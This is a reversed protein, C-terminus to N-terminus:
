NYFNVLPDCKMDITFNNTQSWIGPPSKINSPQWNQPIVFLRGWRGGNERRVPDGDPHLQNAWSGRRGLQQGRCRLNTERYECLRGELRQCHHNWGQGRWYNWFSGQVRSNTKSQVLHLHQFWVKQGEKIRKWALVPINIYLNATQFWILVNELITNNKLVSVGGEERETQYKNTCALLYINQRIM